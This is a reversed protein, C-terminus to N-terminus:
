KTIGCDHCTYTGASDMQEINSSGCESCKNTEVPASEHYMDCQNTSHAEGGVTCDNSSQNSSDNISKGCDDCIGAFSGAQPVTGGCFKCSESSSDENTTENEKNEQKSEQKTEGKLSEKNLNKVGHIPNTCDRVHAEWAEKCEHFNTVQIKYEELDIGFADARNKLIRESDSFGENISKLTTWDHDLDALSVGNPTAYDGIYDEYTGYLECKYQEFNSDETSTSSNELTDQTSACGTMLCISLASIGIVSVLRKNLKM